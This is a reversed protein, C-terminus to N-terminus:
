EGDPMEEDIVDLSFEAETWEPVEDYVRFEAKLHFYMASLDAQPQNATHIQTVHSRIGMHRMSGLVMHLAGMEMGCVYSADDHPGGNSKVTVLSVVPEYHAEENM